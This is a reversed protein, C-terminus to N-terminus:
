CSICFPVTLAIDVTGKKNYNNCSSPFLRVSLVTTYRIEPFIAATYM